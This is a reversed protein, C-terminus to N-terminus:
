WGEASRIGELCAGIPHYGPEVAPGEDTDIRDNGETLKGYWNARPRNVLHEDAYAWLRDYWDRYRDEGTREGLVAAAGIAEAVPWGYKDTALPEGDRGFTYYFGGREDDWGRDVAADFLASARRLLWDDDRHRAIGGLLKAWEAHHGPQYGWPRFQHDPEDRNYAFDHEWDDTYHEWILGDTEEALEVTLRRAITVARDLYEEDGTTEYAALMAECAHMNENQGRYDSEDEWGPGFESACLGHQPEWFRRTVLDAVAEVDGGSGPVGAAEARAVALLVFAHGYCSLTRDVPERVDLLWHYGGSDPDRHFGELFALGHEAADVCWNEGDENGHVGRGNRREDEEGGEGGEGIGLTAAVSFNAVFRCTAVLHKPDPDYVRGDVEDLQAVYGGREDICTPYYFELVGEIEDRLRAPDRYTDSHM